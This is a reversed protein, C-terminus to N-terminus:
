FNETFVIWQHFSKFVIVSTFINKITKLKKTKSLNTWGM